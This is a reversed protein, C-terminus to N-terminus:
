DLDWNYSPLYGSTSVFFYDNTNSFPKLNGPIKGFITQIPVLPLAPRGFSRSRTLAVALHSVYLLQCHCHGALTSASYRLYMTTCVMRITELPSRISRLFATQPISPIVGSTQAYNSPASLEGRVHPLRGNGEPCSIIIVVRYLV